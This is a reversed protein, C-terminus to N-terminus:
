EDDIAKHTRGAFMAIARNGTAVVLGDEDTAVFEEFEPEVGYISATCVDSIAGSVGPRGPGIQLLPLVHNRLAGGARVGSAADGAVRSRDSGGRTRVRHVDDAVGPLGRIRRLEDLAIGGM